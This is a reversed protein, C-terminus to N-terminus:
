SRRPSGHVERKAALEGVEALFREINEFAQESTYGNAKRKLYLKESEKVIDGAEEVLHKQPSITLEDGRRKVVLQATNADGLLDLLRDPNARFEDLSLTLTTM